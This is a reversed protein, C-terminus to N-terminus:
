SLFFNNFKKLRKVVEIFWSVPNKKFTYCFFRIIGVLTFSLWIVAMSLLIVSAAM